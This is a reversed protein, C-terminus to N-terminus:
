LSGNVAAVAIGGLLALETCWCRAIVTRLFSFFSSTLIPPSPTACPALGLFGNFSTSISTGLLESRRHVTPRRMVGLTRDSASWRM